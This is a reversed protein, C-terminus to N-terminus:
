REVVERLEAMARSLMSKVTGTKCGLIQAIEALPLDAYYRLVVAARRRPALRKLASWMEDIELSAVSVTATLHDLRQAVSRRRGRELCGNVVSRRLYPVPDDLRDFRAFLGVFAEQVIDEAAEDSGTMMFAVRTMREYTARYVEEFTMVVRLASATRAPSGAAEDEVEAEVEDAGV